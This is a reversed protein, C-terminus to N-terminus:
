LVHVMKPRAVSPPKTRTPLLNAAQNLSTCSSFDHNKKTHTLSQNPCLILMTPHSLSAKIWGVITMLSEDGMHLYVGGPQWWCDGFGGGGGLLGAISIGPVSTTKQSALFLCPASKGRQSRREVSSMSFCVSCRQSPNSKTASRVQLLELHIVEFPLYSYRCVALVIMITVLM